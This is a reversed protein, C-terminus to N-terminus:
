NVEYVVNIQCNPCVAIHEGPEEFTADIEFKRKCNFCECTIIKRKLNKLYKIRLRETINYLRHYLDTSYDSLTELYKEALSEEYNCTKLSEEVVRQVPNFRSDGLEKLYELLDQYEAEIGALM